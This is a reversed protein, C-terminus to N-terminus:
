PNEVSCQRFYWATDYLVMYYVRSHVLHLLFYEDAIFVEYGFIKMHQANHCLVSGANVNKPLNLLLKQKSISGLDAKM